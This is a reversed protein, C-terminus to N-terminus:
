WVTLQRVRKADIAIHVLDGKPDQSVQEVRGREEFGDSFFCGWGNHVIRWINEIEHLAARPEIGDVV